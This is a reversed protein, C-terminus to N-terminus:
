QKGDGLLVVKNRGAKVNKMANRADIVRKANKVIFDYDYSSHDTTIIMCDAEQLAKKTIEV